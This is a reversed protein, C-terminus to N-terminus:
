IKKPPIESKPREAEQTPKAPQPMVSRDEPTKYPCPVCKRLFRNWQDSKLRAINARVFMAGISLPISVYTATQLVAALVALTPLALATVTAAVALVVSTITVGIAIRTWRRFKADSDKVEPNKKFAYFNGRTQSVWKAIKDLTSKLQKFERVYLRKDSAETLKVGKSILQLCNNVWKKDLIYKCDPQHIIEKFKVLELKGNVERYSIAARIWELDRFDLEEIRFKCHWLPYSTADLWLKFEDSTRCLWFRKLSDSLQSLSTKLSLNKQESNTQVKADIASHTLHHIAGKHKEFNRLCDAYRYQVTM